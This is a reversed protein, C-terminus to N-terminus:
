LTPIPRLQPMFFGIAFENSEICHRMTRLPDWISTRLPSKETLHAKKAGPSWTSALAEQGLSSCSQSTRTREAHTKCTQSGIYRHGHFDPAVLLWYNRSSAPILKKPHLLPKSKGRLSGSEPLANRWVAAHEHQLPPLLNWLTRSPGHNARRLRSDLLAVRFYQMIRTTAQRDEVLLKWFQSGAQKVGKTACQCGLVPELGLALGCLVVGPEPEPVELLATFFQSAARLKHQWVPRAWTEPVMSPVPLTNCPPTTTLHSPHQM